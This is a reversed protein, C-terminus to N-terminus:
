NTLKLTGAFTLVMTGGPGINHRWTIVDQFDIYNGAYVPNMTGHFHYDAPVGPHPANRTQRVGNRWWDLGQESILGVVTARLSASLRFSWPITRPSGCNYQATFVGNGDSFTVGNGCALEWYYDAQTVNAPEESAGMRARLAAAEASSIPTDFTMTLQTFTGKVSISAVKGDSQAQAPAALVGLALVVVGFLTALWRSSARSYFQQKTSRM